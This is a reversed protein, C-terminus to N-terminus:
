PTGDHPSTEIKRYGLTHILRLIDRCTPYRCTRRLRDVARLFEQEEGSYDSGPFPDDDDRDAPM